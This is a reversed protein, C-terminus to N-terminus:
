GAEARPRRTTREPGSAPPPSASAVAPLAPSLETLIDDSPEPEPQPQSAPSPCKTAGAGNLDSTNEEVYGSAGENEATKEGAANEYGSAGANKAGEDGAAEESDSGQVQSARDRGKVDPKQDSTDSEKQLKRLDNGLRWFERFCSREERRMLEMEKSIEMVYFDRARISLPAEQAAAAEQWAETVRRREEGALNWLQERLPDREKGQAVKIEPNPVAAEDGEDDKLIDQWEEDNLADPLPPPPPQTFRRPRRLQHLLELIQEMGESPNQQKIEECRDFCGDPTYFDPRAVAYQLDTLFAEVDAARERLQQAAERRKAEIQWIHNAALSEQMREARQIRWQLSALRDTIWEQYANAPRFQQRAGEVLAALAEPDEGLAVLAQDRLASYYGHRLNAARAREKGEATAAGHSQRANRRHAELNKETMTQQVLAM